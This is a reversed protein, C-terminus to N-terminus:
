GGVFDLLLDFRAFRIVRVALDPVNRLQLETGSIVALEQLDVLARLGAVDVFTVGSLDLAVEELHSSLIEAVAKCLVPATAIDLEGCVAVVASGDLHIVDASFPREVYAM